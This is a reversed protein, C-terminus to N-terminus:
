RNGQRAIVNVTIPQSSSALYGGTSPTLKAVILVVGHLSPKFTCTVSLASSVIGVCTPIRKNNAFFTVRGNAGALTAIVRIQQRFTATNGPPSLALNISTAVQTVTITTLPSQASNVYNLNDGVAIVGVTYTTSLTLGVLITPSTIGGAAVTQSEIFTTGNSAYVNILYSSANATTSTESVAVSSGSQVNVIPAAPTSLAPLVPGFTITITQTPAGCSAGGVGGWNINGILPRIVFVSTGSNCNGYGQNGFEDWSGSTYTWTNSGITISGSSTSNHLANALTQVKTPDSVTISTNNNTSSFTFQTYTGTLSSKFATWATTASSTPVANNTFTQSYTIPTTDAAAKPVNVALLSIALLGIVVLVKSIGRAQSKRQV